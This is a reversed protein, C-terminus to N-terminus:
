TRLWSQMVANKTKVILLGGSIRSNLLLHSFGDEM